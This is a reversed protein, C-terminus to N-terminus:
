PVLKAYGQSAATDLHGRYAEFKPHGPRIEGFADDAPDEDKLYVIPASVPVVIAGNKSVTTILGRMLGHQDLQSVIIMRMAGKTLSVFHMFMSSSPIHLRGRHNYAPDPRNWEEFVLSPWAPDWSIDTQYAVVLNPFAFGPRLTVYTGILHDVAPKTYAGMYIPAVDGGNGAPQGPVDSPVDYYTPEGNWDARLHDFDLGLVMSVDFLTQDRVQRAM